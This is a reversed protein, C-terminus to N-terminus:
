AAARGPIKLRVRAEVALTELRLTEAALVKKGLASLRYYRRRQDTDGARQGMDRVLGRDLLKQLNDYLTGPGLRYLGGSQREIDKIIGYGHLDEGALALLIHLVAPALPQFGSVPDSSM